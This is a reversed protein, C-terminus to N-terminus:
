SLDVTAGGAIAVEGCRCRGGSRTKVALIVERCRGTSILLQRVTYIFGLKTITFLCWVHDACRM